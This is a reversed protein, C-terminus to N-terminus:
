GVVQLNVVVVLVLVDDVGRGLGLDPHVAPDYLLLDQARGGTDLDTAPRQDVGAVLMGVVSARVASADAAFEATM